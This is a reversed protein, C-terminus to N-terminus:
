KVLGEVKKRGEVAKVHEYGRQQTLLHIQSRKEGYDVKLLLLSQQVERHDFDVRQSQTKEQYALREEENSMLQSM